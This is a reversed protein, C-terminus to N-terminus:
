RFISRQMKRGTHGPEMFLPILADPAGQLCVTPWFQKKWFPHLNHMACVALMTRERRSTGIRMAPLIYIAFGGDVKPELMWPRVAMITPPLACRMESSLRNNDTIPQVANTISSVCRVSKMKTWKVDLISMGSSKKARM